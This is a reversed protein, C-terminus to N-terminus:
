GRPIRRPPAKVSAAVREALRHLVFRFEGITRADPPAQETALLIARLRQYDSRTAGRDLTSETQRLTQQAIRLASRSEKPMFERNGVRRPIVATLYAREVDQLRRYTEVPSSLPQAQVRNPYEGRDDRYQAVAAAILILAALEGAIRASRTGRNRYLARHAFGLIAGALAGGAHGWNDIRPLFGLIATLILVKVMQRQLFEGVRTKSRWGAVACLAVLGMLVTSGGGSHVDGRAGTAYRLVGSLLNGGAGLVIYVALFQARGYWSEVLCGLQYMGFVNMALHLIGFHVFTATVARWIEGQRLENLTMSGLRHADTTEFFLRRITIVQGQQISMAVMLVYVLVWLACIGFTVPYSRIERILGRFM